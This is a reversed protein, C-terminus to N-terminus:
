DAEHTLTSGVRASFSALKSESRYLFAFTAFPENPQDTLIVNQTVINELNLPEELAFSTIHEVNAHVGGQGAKETSSSLPLSLGGKTPAGETRVRCLIVKITGVKETADLKQPKEASDHEQVSLSNLWHDLGVERFLFDRQAPGRGKSSPLWQSTLWTM